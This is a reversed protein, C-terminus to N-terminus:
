AASSNMLKDAVYTGLKYGGISACAFGLGQLTGPIWKISKNLLKTTACYDNFAEVQKELFPSKHYGGNRSVVLKRGNLIKYKGDKAILIKKGNVNKYIGDKEISMKKADYKSVIPMAMAEKAIGEFLFMGGLGAGEEIAADKKNEATAVKIAGTACIIPNIHDATYSLVKGFGNVVKNAKSLSKISEEASVVDSAISKNSKAIESLGSGAKLVQAGAIDMNMAAVLPNNDVLADIGNNSRRACFWSNSAITPMFASIALGASM